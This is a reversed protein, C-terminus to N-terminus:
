TRTADPHLRAACEAFDYAAVKHEDWIGAGPLGPLSELM